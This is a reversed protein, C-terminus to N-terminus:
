IGVMISTIVTIVHTLLRYSFYLLFIYGKEGRVAIAGATSQIPRRGIRPLKFDSAM